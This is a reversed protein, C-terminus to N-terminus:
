PDLPDSADVFLLERAVVLCGDTGTSDYMAITRWPQYGLENVSRPGVGYAIYPAQFQDSTFLMPKEPSLGLQLLLRGANRVNTTTHRAYPDLLIASEPIGHTQMLYRKMEVAESFKTRDPHVHGGSPVIVPALGAKWRAAALDARLISLGDIQTEPDEPGQGPLLIMAFPYDDLKVTKLFAIAAANESTDIPEYRFAENRGAKLMAAETVARLPEFFLAGDAVTVGEIVEDLQAASLERAGRDFTGLLTDFTFNWSERVLSGAAADAWRVFAGSPRLHKRVLESSDSGFAGVFADAVSTRDFASLKARICAVDGDCGRAEVFSARLSTGLPGLTANNAITQRVAQDGNLMALLPVTRRTFASSDPLRYTHDFGAPSFAPSGACADPNLGQLEKPIERGADAPTPTSTSSCATAVLAALIGGM